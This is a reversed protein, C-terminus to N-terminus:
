TNNPYFKPAFTLNSNGNPYNFHKIFHHLVIMWAAIGRLIQISQIKM